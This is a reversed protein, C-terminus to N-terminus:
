AADALPNEEKNDEPSSGGGDAAASEITGFKERALDTVRYRNEVRELYGYGIYKKARQRADTPRLNPLGLTPGYAAMEEPLAGNPYHVAVRRLIQRWEKSIAGPQRGKHSKNMEPGTESNQTSRRAASVNPRLEAAHELTRLESEIAALRTDLMEREARLTERKQRTVEILEDLADKVMRM